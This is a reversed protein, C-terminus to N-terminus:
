YGESLVECTNWDDETGVVIHRAPDMGPGEVVIVVINTEDYQEYYSESTSDDESITMDTVFYGIKDYYEMASEYILSLQKYDLIKSGSNVVEQCLIATELEEELLQQESKGDERFVFEDADTVTYKEILRGVQGDDEVRINLVACETTGDEFEIEMVIKDSRQEESLDAINM